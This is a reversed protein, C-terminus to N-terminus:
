RGSGTPAAGGRGPGAPAPSPRGACPLPAAEPLAGEDEEGEERHRSRPSVSSVSSRSDHPDMDPRDVGVMAASLPLWCEDAAALADDGPGGEGDECGGDRGARPAAAARSGAIGAEILTGRGLPLSGL